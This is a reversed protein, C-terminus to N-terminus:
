LETADCNGLEIQQAAEIARAFRPLESCNHRTVADCNGSLESSLRTVRNGCLEATDHNGLAVRQQAVSAWLEAHQTTIVCLEQTVIACLEQTANACLEQTVIACLEQTLIACLM